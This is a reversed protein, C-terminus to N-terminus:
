FPSCIEGKKRQFGKYFLPKKSFHECLPATIFVFYLSFIAPPFSFSKRGKEKKKEEQLGIDLALKEDKNAFKWFEFISKKHKDIEEIYLSANKVKLEFVKLKTEMAKIDLSLNKCYKENKEYVNSEM